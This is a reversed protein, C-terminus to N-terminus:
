GDIRRGGARDQPARDGLKADDIVVIIGHKQRSPQAILRRFDEPGPDPGVITQEDSDLLAAHERHAAERLRSFNREIVYRRVSAKAANAVGQEGRELLARYVLAM